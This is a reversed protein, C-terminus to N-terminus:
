DILQTTISLIIAHHLSSNQTIPVIYMYQISEQFIKGEYIEQPIIRREVLKKEQPGKGAPRKNKDDATMCKLNGELKKYYRLGEGFSSTEKFYDKLTDKDTKLTGKATKPYKRADINLQKLCELM